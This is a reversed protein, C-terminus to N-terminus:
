EAGQIDPLKVEFIQNIHIWTSEDYEDQVWRSTKYLKWKGPQVLKKLNDPVNSEFLNKGLSVTGQNPYHSISTESLEKALIRNESELRKIEKQDDFLYMSTIAAVLGFTAGYMMANQQKYKPKSNGIAAGGAVGFGIAYLSKQKNSTACGVLLLCILLLSKNM